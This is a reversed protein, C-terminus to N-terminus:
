AKLLAPISTNTIQPNASPYMSKGNRVSAVGVYDAGHHGCGFDTKNLTTDSYYWRSTGQYALKSVTSENGITAEPATKTLAGQSNMQLTEYVMKITAKLENTFNSDSIRKYVQQEFASANNIYAEPAGLPQTSDDDSKLLIPSPMWDVATKMPIPVISAQDFAKSPDAYANIFDDTKQMDCVQVDKGGCYGDYAIDWVRHMNRENFVIAREHYKYTMGWVGHQGDDFVSLETQGWLTAGLYNLGGRGIIAGLMYHEICPRLLLLFKMDKVQGKNTWVKATNIMPTTTDELANQMIKDITLTVFNDTFEDYLEVRGANAETNGSYKISGYYFEATRVRRRLVDRPAAGEEMSFARSKIINLGRYKSITPGQKLIEAGEDGKAIYSTKEQTMTMQFTLKPSTLMFDPEEAGWSQLLQKTDEIVIDLANQNKQCFGFMDVYDRLTKTVSDDMYYQDNVQKSYSPALVLAMHVDLDNTNQISGVVQLIQNKFNEKGKETQMFNHEMTIALGQRVTYGSFTQKRQTLTRAASEYPVRSALGEDFTYVNWELKADPTDMYQYPLILTTFPSYTGDTILGDVRDQMYPNPGLLKEPLRDPIHLRSHRFNRKKDQHMENGSPGLLNLFDQETTDRQDRGQGLENGSQGANFPFQTAASM